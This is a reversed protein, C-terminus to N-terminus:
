TSARAARGACPGDYETTVGNPYELRTRRGAADYGLRYTGTAPDIRGVLRNDADYLSTVQGMPGTLGTRNGNADCAYQITQGLTHNTAETIRNLADYVFSL